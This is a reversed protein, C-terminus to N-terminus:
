KVFETGLKNLLWAYYERTRNSKWSLQHVCNHSYVLFIDDHHFQTRIRWLMNVKRFEINQCHKRSQLTNTSGLKMSLQWGICFIRNTEKLDIRRRRAFTWELVNKIMWYWKNFKKSTIRLPRSNNAMESSKVVSTRKLEAAIKWYCHYITGM